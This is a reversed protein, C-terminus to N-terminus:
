LLDVKIVNKKMGKVAEELNSFVELFKTLGSQEMMDIIRPSSTVIRLRGSKEKLKKHILVLTGLFTSDIFHCTSMDIIIDLHNCIINTFIRDKFAVAEKLSARTLNVKEIICTDRIERTFDDAFM